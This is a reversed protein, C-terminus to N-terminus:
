REDPSPSGRYRLLFWPVNEPEFLLRSNQQTFPPMHDGVVLIHTPPFDPEAVVRALAEASGDWIAFLRCVLPFSDDLTSGLQRCDETQLERNAVVPLHSNLTLWYVFQPRNSQAIDASILAPVDRDCAGPFVNPCHSAGRHELDEMFSLHEFGVLPYWRDRDFFNPVFGHYARTEYGRQALIAPICNPQPGEIERYDGWRQCLERLEGSTTSSYYTTTGQTIEFRSAFEPRTWIANLRERLVANTPQGMAEVVVVMLNHRGDALGIFDTQATASTFPSDAEPLRSYATANERSRVYDAAALVATVCLAGTVWRLGTFDTPRALRWFGLSCTALLLLAGVLYEPSVMPNIDMVLGAVSVIMSVAMNFMHGIFVLVLYALLAIFLILQTGYNLRRAILGVGGCLLIEPFRAPGGAVTIPLFPLNPLLLWCVLWNAFASRGDDVALPASPRDTAVASQM